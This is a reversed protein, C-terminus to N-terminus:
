TRLVVLAGGPVRTGAIPTTGTVKVQGPHQGTRLPPNVEV